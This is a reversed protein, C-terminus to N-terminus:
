VEIEVQCIIADPHNRVLYDKKPCALTTSHRGDRGPEKIIGIYLIKKEQIMEAGHFLEIESVIIVDDEFELGPRTIACVIEKYYITRLHGLYRLRNGELLAYKGSKFQEFNFETM